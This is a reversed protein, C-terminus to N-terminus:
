NKPYKKIVWDVMREIDPTSYSPLHNERIFHGIEVELLQQRTAGETLRKIIFDLLKKRRMRFLIFAWLLWLGALVAATIIIIWWRNSSWWKSIASQKTGNKLMGAFITFHNVYASVDGTKANYTSNIGVWGTATEYYAM